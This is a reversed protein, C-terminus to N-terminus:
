ELTPCIDVEGCQGLRIWLVVHTECPDQGIHYSPQVSCFREEGNNGDLTLCFLLCFPPVEEWWCGMVDDQRRAIGVSGGNQGQRGGGDM